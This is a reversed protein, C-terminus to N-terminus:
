VLIVTSNSVKNNQNDAKHSNECSLGRLIIFFILFYDLLKTKNINEYKNLLNLNSMLAMM